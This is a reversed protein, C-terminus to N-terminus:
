KSNGVVLGILVGNKSVEPVACAGRNFCCPRRTGHSLKSCTVAIRRKRTDPNATGGIWRIWDWRAMPTIAQWLKQVKDDAASLATKIDDPVVPEPWDKTPEIEAAVTAGTELDVGELMPTNLALWHGGLGDPELPSAFAVGNLTGKVMVQGRSPLEASAPDPLHVIARSNISSVTGTFRIAPM